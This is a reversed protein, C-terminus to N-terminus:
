YTVIPTGQFDLGRYGANSSFVDVDLSAMLGEYAFPNDVIAVTIPVFRSWKTLTYNRIYNMFKNLKDVVGPMELPIENSFNWM